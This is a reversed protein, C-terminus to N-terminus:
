VPDSCAPIAAVAPFVKQQLPAQSNKSRTALVVGKALTSSNDADILTGTVAQPFALGSNCGTFAPLQLVTKMQGAFADQVTAGGIVGAQANFSNQFYFDYNGAIANLYSTHTGKNIDDAVGDHGDVFTGNIATFDYQGKTTQNGPPNELGLIAVARVGKGNLAILDSVVTGTSAEAVVQRTQTLAATTGSYGATASFPLKYGASSSPYNLFYQSGATKTGSGETRDLFVMAGAPLQKGNDDYLQSWDGITGTIIGEMEARSFNTKPSTTSSYVVDTVAVGFLNDYIGDQFSVTPAPGGDTNPNPAGANGTANNYHQFMAVEVDSLGFTPADGGDLSSTYAATPLGTTCSNHALGTQGNLV